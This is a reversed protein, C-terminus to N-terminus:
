LALNVQRHRLYSGRRHGWRRRLLRCVLLHLLFIIVTEDRTLLLWYLIRSVGREVDCQAVGLRVLSGGLGHSMARDFLHRFGEGDHAHAVLLLLDLLALALLFFVASTTLLLFFLVSSEVLL